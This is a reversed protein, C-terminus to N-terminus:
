TQRSSAPRPRSNKGSKSVKQVNPKKKPLDVPIEEVEAHSITASDKGSTQKQFAMDKAKSNHKNKAIQIHTTRHEDKIIDVTTHKLLRKMYNRHTDDIVLVARDQVRRLYRVFGLRSTAPPGDVIIVDATVLHHLLRENDQYYNDEMPVYLTTIGQNRLFKVWKVDHEVTICDDFLEHLRHSGEGGGLEVIKADEPIHKKLWEIVDNSMSWDLRRLSQTRPSKM